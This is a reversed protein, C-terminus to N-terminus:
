IPATAKELWQRESENLLPTLARKVNQHYTNLQSREKSSLLDTQILKLDIPCLTLNGFCLFDSPDSPNSEAKQVYILNEIRMGFEGTKYYGPENSVVMGEELPVGAGRYYSIAQPGEHVCLFSGVGHGTGHGYNLAIDWLPKRALTDLQPGCTGVPFQANALALHGQLVRTFCDKQEATPNGLSVTRTIDTTGDLYQGGSDILYIGEPMLTKASAKTARYHVIAGNSAYGSISNFSLGKFNKGKSRIEALKNSATIETVTGTPVNQELWILFKVMAAGDRIHAQRFGELEVENKRAKMLTVPSDQTCIIAQDLKQVIWQNASDFDILVKKSKTLTKLKPGFDSYNCVTINDPLTSKVEQSLKGPPVFLWAEERGILAYSIFVPNYAVDSGRLNFLWAIADLQTVVHYDAHVKAMERSVDDLKQATSKGSFAIPHAEIPDQPIPPRDTWITDVLNDELFAVRDAGLEKVLSAASKPSLLRPDIALRGKLNQKAFQEISPTNPQGMKMLDIGTGKLQSEAQLFYRSDTWLGAFTDTILLDGASGDFGSLWARRNWCLPLYESQHPDTSPVWYAQVDMEKMKERLHKIRQKIM